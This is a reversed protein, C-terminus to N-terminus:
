PGFAQRSLASARGAIRGTIRVPVREAIARHGSDIPQFDDEREGDVPLRDGLKASNRQAQPIVAM